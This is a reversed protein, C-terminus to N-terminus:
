LAGQFLFQSQRHRYVVIGPAAAVIHHSVTREPVTPVKDVEKAFGFLIRVVGAEESSEGQAAGQNQLTFKVVAAM